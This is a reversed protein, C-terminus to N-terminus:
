RWFRCWGNPSFTGSVIQCSNNRPNFVRCNACKQNGRPEDRYGAARPSAKAAAPGASGLLAALSLASALTGGTLLTRRSM